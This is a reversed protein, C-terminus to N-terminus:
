EKGGGLIELAKFITVQTDFGCLLIKKAEEKEKKLKEIVYCSDKLDQKLEKNEQQLSKVYDEYYLKNGSISIYYDRNEIM